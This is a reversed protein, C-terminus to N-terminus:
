LESESWGASGILPVFRCAVLPEVELASGRRTCRVLRQEVRSGVPVVLRGGDERLQAVLPAPAVPAAATVIIGDFRAAEPWGLSGDGVRFRINGYGLEELLARAEAALDAHREITLVEAVLEALIATQYGSGTGVELVRATPFPGLAQTMCAVMYPQSITQGHSLVLARDAYAEIRQAPPVFMHRPVAEMAALVAPHVIGRARLQRTLMSERAADYRGM